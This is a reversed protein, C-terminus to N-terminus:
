SRNNLNRSMKISDASKSSPELWQVGYGDDCTAFFACETDKLLLCTLRGSFYAGTDIGIRLPTVVPARVVTHGHVIRKGHWTHSKIFPARISLLDSRSQAHLAVGPRIGAHVFAYDGWELLLDLNDLFSRHSSPLRDALQAAAALLWSETMPDPPGDIGYSALTTGGGLRLWDKHAVPDAMFARMAMEHNGELFRWEIPGSRLACLRDLVGRSDPGRDVYDGLFVVTPSEGREASALADTTLTGLIEDLLDSRGHIDGIAYLRKGDPVRFITPTPVAPRRRLLRLLQKLM